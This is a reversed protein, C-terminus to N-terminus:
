ASYESCIPMWTIMRPRMMAVSTSTKPTRMATMVMPTPEPPEHGWGGRGLEAARSGHGWHGRGM